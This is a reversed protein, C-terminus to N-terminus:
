LHLTGVMEARGQFRSEWVAKFTEPHPLYGAKKIDAAIKEKAMMELRRRASEKGTPLILPAEFTRLDVM